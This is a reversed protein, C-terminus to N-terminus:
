KNKGGNTTQFIPYPVNEAGGLCNEADGQDAVVIDLEYYSGEETDEFVVTMELQEPSFKKLEELLQQYTM